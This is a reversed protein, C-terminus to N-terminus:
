MGSGGGVVRSMDHIKRVVFEDEGSEEEAKLGEAKVLASFSAHGDFQTKRSEETTECSYKYTANTYLICLHGICLNDFLNSIHSVRFGQKSRKEYDYTKWFLISTSDGRLNRHTESWCKSSLVM